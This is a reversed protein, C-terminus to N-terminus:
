KSTAYAGLRDLLDYDLDLKVSDAVVEIGNLQGYILINKVKHKKLTDNTFGTTYDKHMRIYTVPVGDLQELPFDETKYRKLLTKLGMKDIEEVFSIFDIKHMQATYSTISFVVKKIVDQNKNVFDNLWVYFNANKITIYSLNVCLEYECSNAKIFEVTKEVVQKDFSEILELKQAVSVFSGIMLKKGDYDFLQPAVEKMVLKEDEFSYTDLVFDIDFDSKEIIDKVNNDIEEYNKAIEEKTILSFSNQTVKSNEYAKNASDLVSDITGYLDIYTGGLQIISPPVDFNKSMKTSIEKVINSATNEVIKFDDSKLIVAFLSGYFRYIKSDTKSSKYVTNKIINSYHEIFNNIYGTDHKKSLQALDEVKIVFVYGSISSVFMNKLDFDFIKKNPLGTLTDTSVKLELSEKNMNLENTLSAIKSSIKSVKKVLENIEKTGEINDKKLKVYKSNIINELHENLRSVPKKVYKRLIYNHYTGITFTLPILMISTFIILKLIFVELQKKIINTNLVYEVTAYKSEDVKIDYSNELEEVSILRNIFKPFIRSDEKTQSYNINSFKLRAIFNKIKSDKYLQLRINVDDDKDFQLSPIFRYLNTNEIKKIEGLAVDVKIEALNWSKDNFNELSDILISKNFILKEYRIEITKFIDFKTNDQIVELVNEGRNVLNKNLYTNIYKKNLDYTAYSKQLLEKKYSDYFFKSSIFFLFIFVVVLFILNKNKEFSAVM